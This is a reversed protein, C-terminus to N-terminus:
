TKMTNDFNEELTQNTEGLIEGLTVSLAKKNNYYKHYDEEKPIQCNLKPQYKRIYYGEQFGLADNDGDVVELVDFGVPINNEAAQRLVQYKHARWEDSQKNIHCLHGALRELMNQSKGIYVIIDKIKICYIGPKNYKGPAQSEILNIYENFKDKDVM